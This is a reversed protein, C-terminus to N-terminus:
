YRDQRALIARQELEKPSIDLVHVIDQESHAKGFLWGPIYRCGLETLYDLQQRSEVGEAVINMKLGHAMAVIADVLCAGNGEEV